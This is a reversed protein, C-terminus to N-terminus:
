LLKSVIGPVPPNSLRANSAAREYKVASPFVEQNPLKERNRTPVQIQLKAATAHKTMAKLSLTLRYDVFM